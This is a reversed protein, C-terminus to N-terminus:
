LQDYYFVKQIIIVCLELNRWIEFKSKDIQQVFTAFDNQLSMPPVPIDLTELETKTIAERTAGGAGGIGLLVRQETDTILLNSLYVPNLKDKTRLISVHQNVRAPLVAKPLICCRAVSAGTINILVDNEQLTVNDLERAQEETIHALGDYEFYGKYVNMSRVLSIGESIYSKRGGKPTAGSGIKSTLTKLKEVSWQKPNLVPDGFMEIFRSKILTDYKELMQKHKELLTTCKNLQKAIQKQTELTPLPVTFSKLISLNINNQAVGRGIRNVEEKLSNLYAFFYDIDISSKDKIKIGAIAQNTTADINLITAEGLTAFISYLITGKSFLKASSNELGKQTIHETTKNLYKGSFDSIKVWPITGNKWYETKSRSPTGGSQIECVDGLRVTKWESM